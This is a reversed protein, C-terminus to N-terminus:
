IYASHASMYKASYIVNHSTPSNGAFVWCKNQQWGDLTRHSIHYIVTLVTAASIAATACTFATTIGALEFLPFPYGGILIQLIYNSLVVLTSCVYM